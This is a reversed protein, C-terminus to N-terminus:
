IDITDLFFSYNYTEYYDLNIVSFRRQSCAHKLRPIFVLSDNLSSM